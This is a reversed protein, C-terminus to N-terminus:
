IVILIVRLNPLGLQVGLCCWDALCNQEPYVADHCRMEPMSHHELNLENRKQRYIPKSSVSYAENKLEKSLRYDNLVIDASM